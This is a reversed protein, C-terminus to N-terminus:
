RKRWLDTHLLGFNAIHREILRLGHQELYSDPNTLGRAPLRTAARFFLYMTKLVLAARVRSLGSSPLRFDSLLWTGGSVLSQAIRPILVQLQEPRFCDLFFHTAVADFRERPFDYEFVDAHVFTVQRDTADRAQALMKASSDLCTIEANPCLRVVESLFRGPGEGLLLICTADAIAPLYRTRCKQLQSGALVREMWRYHPALLDFGRKLTAHRM